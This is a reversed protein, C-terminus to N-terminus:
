NREAYFGDPLAHFRGFVAIFDLYAAKLQEAELGFQEGDGCAVAERFYALQSTLRWQRDRFTELKVEEWGFLRADLQANLVRGWAQFVEEVRCDFAEYDVLQLMRDQATEVVEFLAVEMDWVPDLYYDMDEQRRLAMLEYRLHDLQILTNNLNGERISQGADGLWGRVREFSEPFAVDEPQEQLYREEVQQWRDELYYFSREALVLQSQHSYYWVPIFAQDFQIMEKQVTEEDCTTLLAACAILAFLKWINKM